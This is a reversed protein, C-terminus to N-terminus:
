KLLRHYIFVPFGFFTRSEMEICEVGLGEYYGYLRRISQYLTDGLFSPLSRGLGSFSWTNFITRLAYIRKSLGPGLFLYRLYYGVGHYVIRIEGGPRTVGVLEAIARRENTYPIVVKCIVGDLAQERFPLAEAEAVAVKLRRAAADRALDLNSEIGFAKLRKSLEALQVGTGFGVDLVLSQSPWRSFDFDERIYLEWSLDRKSVQVGSVGM